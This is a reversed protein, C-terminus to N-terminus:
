WYFRYLLYDDNEYVLSGCDRVRFYLPVFDGNEEMYAQNKAIIVFDIRHDILLDCACEFKPRESFIEQGVFDRYVFVKMLENDSDTISYKDLWRTERVSIPTYIGAVYGKIGEIQSVVSSRDLQEIQLIDNLKNMVDAADDDAKYLVNYDQEPKFKYHYYTSAGILTLVAYVCTLYIFFAKKIYANSSGHLISIAFLVLTFANFVIEYIRYYVADAFFRYVVVFSVPNIFTVILVILM